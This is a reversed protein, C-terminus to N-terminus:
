EVDLMEKPKKNRAWINRALLGRTDKEREGGQKRTGAIMGQMNVNMKMNLGDISRSTQLWNECFNNMFEGGKMEDLNNYYFSIWVREKKTLKSMIRKDTKGKVLFEKDSGMQPILTEATITSADKFEVIQRSSETPAKESIDDEIDYLTNDKEM